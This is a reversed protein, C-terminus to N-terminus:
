LSLPGVLAMMVLVHAGVPYLLGEALALCTLRFYQRRPPPSAGRSAADVGVM